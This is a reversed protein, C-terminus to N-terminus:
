KESLYGQKIKDLNLGVKSAIITLLENNKMM